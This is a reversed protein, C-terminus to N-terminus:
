SMYLADSHNVSCSSLSVAGCTSLDCHHVRYCNLEVIRIFSGYTVKRFNFGISKGKQSEKRSCRLSEDAVNFVYIYINNKFNVFTHYGSNQFNLGPCELSIVTLSKFNNLYSDDEEGGGGGVEEEEKVSHGKL